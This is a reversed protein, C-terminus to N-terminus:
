HSGSVKKFSQSSRFEILVSLNYIVKMVETEKQHTEWKKNKLLFQHCENIELCVPVLCRLTM